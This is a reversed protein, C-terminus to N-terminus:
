PWSLRFTRVTKKKRPSNGLSNYLQKTNNRAERLKKNLKVCAHDISQKHFDRPSQMQLQM